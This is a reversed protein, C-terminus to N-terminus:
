VLHFGRLSLGYSHIVTVCLKGSTVTLPDHIAFGPDTNQSVNIAYNICSLYFAPEM